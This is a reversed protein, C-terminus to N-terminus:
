LSRCSSEIRMAMKVKGQGLSGAAFGADNDKCM